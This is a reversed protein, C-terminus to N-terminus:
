VSDGKHRTVILRSIAHSVKRSGERDCGGLWKGSAVAAIGKNGM